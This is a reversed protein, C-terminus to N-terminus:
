AETVRALFKANSANTARKIENAMSFCMQFAQNKDPSWTGNWRYYEMNKETINLRFVVYQNKM